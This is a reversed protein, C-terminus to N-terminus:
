TWNIYQPDLEHPQTKRNLINRIKWEVGSKNQYKNVFKDLVQKRTPAYDRNSGDDGTIYQKVQLETPLGMNFPYQKYTNTFGFDQLEPYKLEASPTLLGLLEQVPIDALSAYKWKPNNAKTILKSTVGEIFDTAQPQAVINGALILEQTIATANSSRGGIKFLESALKLSVPSKKTLKEYVESAFKGNEGKLEDLLHALIGDISDHKFVTDIFNRQGDSYKFQHDKPIPDVFEEIASNVMAFYAQSQESLETVDGQIENLAENKPVNLGGLRKTLEELRVSPVYHTGFGAILNDVGSLSDGTYALFKGLEGDLRPLFFSTGVDPFYGIDMEPMALLTNETVVRYPSHVSLGVGGGMTIGDLLSIVPKPYMSLLYNLSYEKYFFEAAKSSDGKVVDKAAQAVDGGACFAKQSSSNIIVNNAVTSKAYEVLRPTIKDVMNTNLANLKATRNLTVVRSTNEARFLVEDATSYLRSMAAFKVSSSKLVRLM